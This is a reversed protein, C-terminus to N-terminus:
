PAQSPQDPAFPDAPLPPLAANLLEEAEAQFMNLEQSWGPGAPNPHERRWRLARDLNARARDIQGLKHRAMALFFLDFADSQGKGAALSKELTTIAEAFQEARYQAVGLTNLYIATGPALAVAKRALVLAQEPDRLAAPGTAMRWALNNYHEAGAQPFEAAQKMDAQAQERHGLGDHVQSRLEYLAPDRPFRQILANLDALADQFKGLRLWIQARRYRVPARSEPDADLVKSFDDVAEQLRGLQLAAQGKM